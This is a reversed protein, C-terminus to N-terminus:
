GLCLHAPRRPHGRRSAPCSCVHRALGAPSTPQFAAPDLFARAAISALGREYLIKAVLAHGGVFDRLDQPTRDEGPEIWNKAFMKNFM